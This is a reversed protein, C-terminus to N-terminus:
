AKISRTKWNRFFPHSTLAELFTVIKKLVIKNGFKQHKEIESKAQPYFEIAYM